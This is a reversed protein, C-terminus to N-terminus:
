LGCPRLAIVMVDDELERPLSGLLRDTLERCSGSFAQFLARVREEGGVRPDTLGDTYLLLLDREQLVIAGEGLTQDAVTLPLGTSALEELVGSGRRLLPPDHGANAYILQRSAPDYLAAFCTLFMTDALMGDLRRELWTLLAGPRSERQAGEELLARAAAAVLAASPGKGAVDALVLLLGAPTDHFFFLDGGLQGAIRYDTSLELGRAEQPPRGLLGKQVRRAAELHSLMRSKSAAQQDLQLRAFVGLGGVLLLLACESLDQAWSLHPGLWSSVLHTFSALGAAALGGAVGFRYSAVLTLTAYLLSPTLMPTYYDVLGVALIAVLLVPLNLV